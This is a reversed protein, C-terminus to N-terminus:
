LSSGLVQHRRKAAAIIKEPDATWPFPKPHQNHEAPFRNIAAQPDAVSHFVGRKLRCKSLKAFFGKVANFWSCSTPRFHFSFPEHRALLARVRSTPRTTTSCSTWPTAMPVEANLAHLFRIFKQHRHLQM